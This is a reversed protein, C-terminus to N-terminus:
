ATRGARRASQWVVCGVSVPKLLPLDVYQIKGDRTVGPREKVETGFPPSFRAVRSNGDRTVGPREKM